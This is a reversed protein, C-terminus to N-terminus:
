EFIVIEVRRNNARGGPTDNPSNPDASGRSEVSLRSEAIGYRHVLLELLGLGRAAALDWNGRFRRNRIPVSDAHGILSVRNPLGRLVEAIQSVAPLAAPKIADEGPEFLFAQPLAVVIGRSDHRVDLGRQELQRAVGSLAPAKAPKERVSQVTQAAISVFLILLITLVDMYSVMWRDRSGKEFQFYAPSM